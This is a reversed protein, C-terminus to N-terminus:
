LRFCGVFVRLYSGAAVPRNKHYKLHGPAVISEVRHHRVSIIIVVLRPRPNADSGVLDQLQVILDAQVRAQGAEFPKVVGAM